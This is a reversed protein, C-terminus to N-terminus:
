LLVIFDWFEQPKEIIPDRSDIVMTNTSKDGYRQHLPPKMASYAIIGFFLGDFYRFLARVLIDFFRPTKGDTSVVRMRLILKGPTAGYSTEFITFYATMLVLEEILSVGCPLTGGTWLEIQTIGSIIGLVAGVVFAVTWNTILYIITDLIYAFARNWFSKGETGQYIEDPPPGHSTLETGSDLRAGEDAQFDPRSHPSFATDGTETRSDILLSRGCVECRLADEQNHSGCNRCIKVTM